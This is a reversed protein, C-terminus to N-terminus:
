SARTVTDVNSSLSAVAHFLPSSAAYFMGTLAKPTWKSYISTRSARIRVEGTRVSEKNWIHRVPHPSDYTSAVADHEPYYEVRMSKAEDALGFNLIHVGQVNVFNTRLHERRESAAISQQMQASGVRRSHGPAV